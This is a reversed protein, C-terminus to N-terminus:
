GQNEQRTQARLGHKRACDHPPLPRLIPIGTIKELGAIMRLLTSKGCGSPGVFVILEGKTIELNIDKLVEVTGGYTKGVSKLSLNAM